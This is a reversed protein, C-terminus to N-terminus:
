FMFDLRLSYDIALGSIDPGDVSERSGGDEYETETTFSAYKIYIEPGFAVSDTLWWQHRAVPGVCFGSLKDTYDGYYGGVTEASLSIYEFRLGVDMRMSEKQMIPYFGAVGFTMMSPNYEYDARTEEEADETVSESHYGLSVEGQIEEGFGIAVSAGNFVGTDWLYSWDGLNAYNGFGTMRYSAYLGASASGAVLLVAAVTVLVLGRRMTEEKEQARVRVPPLRM